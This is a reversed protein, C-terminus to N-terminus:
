PVQLPSPVLSPLPVHEHISLQALESQLSQIALIYYLLIIITAYPLFQSKHGPTILSM